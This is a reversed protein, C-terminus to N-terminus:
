DCIGSDYGDRIKQGHLDIGIQLGLSVENQYLLFVGAQM